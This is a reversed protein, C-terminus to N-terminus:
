GKMVSLWRLMQFLRNINFSQFCHKQTNLNFPCIRSHLLEQFQYNRKCLFARQLTSVSSYCICIYHSHYAIRHSSGLSCWSMKFQKRSEAVLLMLNYTLISLNKLFKIITHACACMCLKNSLSTKFIYYKKNMSELSSKTSKLLM